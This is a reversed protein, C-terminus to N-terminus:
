IHAFDREYRQGRGGEDPAPEIYRPRPPAAERPREFAVGLVTQWFHKFRSVYLSGMAWNAISVEHVANCNRICRRQAPADM